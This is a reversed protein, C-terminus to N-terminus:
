RSERERERVKERERVCVCLIEQGGCKLTLGLIGDDLDGRNM